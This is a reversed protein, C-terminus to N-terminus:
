SSKLRPKIKHHVLICEFLIRVAREKGYPPTETLSVGEGGTSLCVGTFINGQGLSRIRATFINSLNAFGKVQLPNILKSSFSNSNKHILTKTYRKYARYMYKNHDPHSVLPSITLSQRLMATCHLRDTNHTNDASILQHFSVM